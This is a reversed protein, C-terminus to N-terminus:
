SANAKETPSVVLAFRVRLPVFRDRGSVGARHLPAVDYLRRQCFM